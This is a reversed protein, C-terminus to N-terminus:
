GLRLDDSALVVQGVAAGALTARGVGVLHAHEAM